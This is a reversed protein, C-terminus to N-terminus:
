IEVKIFVKTGLVKELIPELQREVSDLVRVRRRDAERNRIMGAEDLDRQSSLALAITDGSVIGAGHIDPFLEFNQEPHEPDIELVKRFTADVLKAAAALGEGTDRRELCDTFVATEEPSLREVHVFSLLYFFQLGLLDYRQYIDMSEEARPLFGEDALRQDLQDLGTKATLISSFLLRYLKQVKVYQATPLGDELLSSEGEMPSFEEEAVSPIADFQDWFQELMNTM